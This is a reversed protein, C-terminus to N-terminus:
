YTRGITIHYKDKPVFGLEQRIDSLRQSFINVFWYHEPRDWGTTDGSQRVEHKIRFDVEEGQYKSWASVIPPVEGKVVSVHANWSPEHLIVGLERKVWWRYYRTIEKDLDVILWWTSDQKKNRKPEYSLIGKCEYDM